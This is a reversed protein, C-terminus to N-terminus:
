HVVEIKRNIVGNPTAVQLVYIGNPLRSVDLDWHNTRLGDLHQVAQGTLSYLTLQEFEQQGNLHVTLFQSAPNPMTKLQEELLVSTEVEDTDDNLKIRLNYPQVRIRGTQGQGNMGAGDGGGLTLLLEEEDTRVGIIDEVVVSLQGIEGHGSATLGSTRTYGAELYGQMDNHEMHLVPSDYNLWNATRWNLNVSSTDFFFPDYQLGFVFGYVDEAPAEATGLKIKITVLDGPEAFLPGELIFDYPLYPMVQPVMTHTRGYYNRIALTDEATVISNGDADVHKIDFGNGQSDNGAFLAGWDDAYLGYWQDTLAEARPNGIEGMRWGVPLLDAMNVVGDANTDGPWVCDGVCSPGAGSGVDLIDMYVKVTKSVACNATAPDELCYDIEFEDTGATVGDNPVYILINNGSIAVDNITTDVAGRLFFAEGLEGQDAIDFRFTAVPVNYGIIIPTQKPTAMYFTSRDPEFNSVFISVTATEPEGNCSPPFATYTFQDVGVFGLAPTYEFRGNALYSVVGHDPQTFNGAICSNYIDNETVKFEVLSNTTTFVQDDFVFQNTKLDLVEIAFALEHEEYAFRIEDAGVYDEGPTYAPVNELEAFVGHEPGSIWEYDEPVLIFARENKKTFVKIEEEGALQESRMVNVSVTGEDCAGMGNCLVYNFHALGSFGPRPTFTIQDPTPGLTATGSNVAPIAQLLKIGNSSLDNDIANIVVPQDEETSAFDHRATILAPEVNVTINLISLHPAPSILWRAISFEDTGVFDMAPTYTLEFFYPSTQVWSLEGHDPQGGILAPPNPRSEFGYVVASNQYTEITVSQAYQWLPLLLLALMVSLKPLSVNM